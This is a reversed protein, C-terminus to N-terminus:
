SFVKLAIAVVLGTTIGVLVAIRRLERMIAKHQEDTM